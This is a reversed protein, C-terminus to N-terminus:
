DIDSDWKVPIIRNAIEENFRITYKQRFLLTPKNPARPCQVVDHLLGAKNLMRDFAADARNVIGSVPIPESLYVKHDAYSPALCYQWDQWNDASAMKLLTKTNKTAPADSAPNTVPGDSAPKTAPVDSAPKTAFADSAAPKTTLTDGDPKTASAVSVAPKTAPADSAPKTAFVDNAPKKALSDSVQIAPTRGARLIIGGSILATAMGAAAICVVRAKLM